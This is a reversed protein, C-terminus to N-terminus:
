VNGDGENRQTEKAWDLHEDDLILKENRITLIQISTSTKQLVEGTFNIGQKTRIKYFSGVEMLEIVM